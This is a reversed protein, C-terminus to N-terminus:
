LDTSNSFNEIDELDQESMGCVIANYDEATIGMKTLASEMAQNLSDESCGSLEMTSELMGTVVTLLVGLKANPSLQSFTM